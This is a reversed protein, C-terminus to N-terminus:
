PSSASRQSECVELVALRNVGQDLLKALQIACTALDACVTNICARRFINLTKETLNFLLMALRTGVDQDRIGPVALSFGANQVHAQLLEVIREVCVQPSGEYEGLETNGPHFLLFPPPDDEYGRNGGNTTADVCAMLLGM